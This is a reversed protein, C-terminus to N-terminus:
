IIGIRYSDGWGLAVRNVAEPQTSNATGPIRPGTILPGRCYSGRTANPRGPPRATPTRITVVGKYSVVLLVVVVSSKSALLEHTHPPTTIPLKNYPSRSLLSRKIRPRSLNPRPAPCNTAAALPPRPAFQPPPAVRTPRWSTLHASLHRRVHWIQM